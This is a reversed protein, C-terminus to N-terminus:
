RIIMLKGIFTGAAEDTQSEVHYVYVGPAVLLGSDSKQDWEATGRLNGGYALPEHRIVRVLDGSVTFIRIVAREPLNRFEIRYTSAEGEVFSRQPDGFVYPNPVAYVDLSAVPGAAASAPDTRRHSGSELEPLDDVVTGNASVWPAPDSNYASVYYGYRQGFELTRITEGNEVVTSDVFRYRGLEADWYRDAESIPIDALLDWYAGRLAPPQTDSVYQFDDSRYIRYGDLDTSGDYFVSGSGDTILATEAIDTWTVGIAARETGRSANVAETEPAPPPEPADAGVPVGDVVAGVGWAVANRVAAANARLAAISGARWGTTDGAVVRRYDLVGAIEAILVRASDGPQLTFPGYSQTYFNFRDGDNPVADLDSPTTVFEYFRGVQDDTARFFELDLAQGEFTGGKHTDVRLVDPAPDSRVTGDPGQVYLVQWGFAAPSQLEDGFKQKWAQNDKLPYTDFPTPDAGGNYNTSYVLAGDDEVHFYDHYPQQWGFGGAQVASLESHFNIRSKTSVSVAGHFAFYVDELTQQFAETNPVVRDAQSSVIRGTNTFTYDYLIFDDYDPYSWVYSRRTITIGTNTDWTAETWEEPLLPNFADLNEVYNEHLVIPARDTIIGRPGGSVGAAFLEYDAPIPQFNPPNGPVNLDRAAIWVGGRFNHMNANVYTNIAQEENCCPHFYGDFGPYLGLPQSTLYDWAGANGVFGYNWVVDWLQGRRHVVNDRVEQAQAQAALGVLLALLLM